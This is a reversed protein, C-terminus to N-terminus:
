STDAVEEDALRAVAPAILEAFLETDPEDTGAGGDGSCFRCDQDTGLCRGCAGLAEGVEVVLAQLRALEAAVLDAERYLAQTAESRQSAPAPEAPAATTSTLISTLDPGGSGGIQQTLLRSVEADRQAPDATLLALLTSPDLSV